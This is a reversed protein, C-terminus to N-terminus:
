ESVSLNPGNPTSFSVGTEPCANIAFFLPREPRKIWPPLSRTAAPLSIKRGVLPQTRMRSTSTCARTAAILAFLIM